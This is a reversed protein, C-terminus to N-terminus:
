SNKMAEKVRAVADAAQKAFDTNKYEDAVQQYLLLADPYAKLKEQIAAAKLLSPAVRPSNAAKGHAAVRMYALAVDKLAAPGANSALGARAEAVCYLAEAKQQPDNFAAPDARLDDLAKQYNKNDLSLHVLQLRADADNRARDPAAPGGGQTAQELLKGTEQAGAADGNARQLELLFTLMTRNQDPALKPDAAAKKVTDIAPTLQDPKDKPIQPKIRDAAAPDHALMTTWGAVAASFKGSKAAAEVLRMSSRSKVWDRNTTGSAKEYAATATDWDGKEFAEEAASFAVDDDLKIKVVEGLPKADVRDNSQMRFFLQDNEVKEIKVNERPLAKTNAGVARTWLTDATTVASALLAAAVFAFRALTFRVLTQRLSTARM